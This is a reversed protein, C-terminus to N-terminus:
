RGPSTVARTLYRGDRTRHVRGMLELEALEVLTRERHSGALLQEPTEQGSGIRDLLRALRLPLGAGSSARPALRAPLGLLAIVDEACRVLPAGGALLELPGRALPATARGPVAAVRVGSARALEVAFLEQVSESEVVVVLDSLHVVTREAALAGWRRGGCGPPLEGALCSRSRQPPPLTRADAAGPPRLGDASLVVAGCGAQEAGKQAARAIGAQNRVVVLVGGCALANALSRAMEAGYDSPRTTGLLAVAPRQDSEWLLRGDGETYLLRPAAPARLRRPYLRDHVCVASTRGCGATLRGQRHARGLEQRRRGGLLGILELDERALLGILQSRDRARLDLVGGLEALLGSRLRCAPCATSSM